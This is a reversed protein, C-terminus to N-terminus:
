LRNALTQSSCLDSIENKTVPTNFPMLQSNDTSDMGLSPWSTSSIKTDCIVDPKFHWFPYSPLPKDKEPYTNWIQIYSRNRLDAVERELEAVRKQLKVIPEEVKEAKAELEAAQERLKKAQDRLKESETM